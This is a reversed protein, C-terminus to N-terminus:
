YGFSIMGASSLRIVYYPYDVSSHLLQHISQNRRYSVTSCNRDARNANSTLAYLAYYIRSRASIGNDKRRSRIFNRMYDAKLGAHTKFPLSIGFQERVPTTTDKFPQSDFIGSNGAKDKVPLM